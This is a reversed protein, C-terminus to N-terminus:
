TGQTGTLITPFQPLLVGLVSNRTGRDGQWVGNVNPLYNTKALGVGSRAANYSELSARVAPYHTLAYRVAQPVTMTLTPPNQTAQPVQATPAAPAQMQAVVSVPILAFSILALLVAQFYQRKDSLM